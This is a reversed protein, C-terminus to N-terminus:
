KGTLDLVKYLKEFQSVPECLEKARAPGNSGFSKRLSPNKIMTEMISVLAQEDGAKALTGCEPTVIEQAGGMATSVVPLGASLAEVFVAGFPEPGENPQFHIDSAALLKLIDPCRGLFKVRDSIGFANCMQKLEDFYQVEVPRQPWSTIWSVWNPLHKLSALTRLHLSHGKWREFRSNQIIVVTEPSVNMEGRLAAREEASVNSTKLFIPSYIVERAIGLREPYLKPVTAMTYRSNCIIKDPRVMGAWTRLWHWGYIADHIWIFLPVKASRVAPGFLATPWLSHCIVADYGHEKIISVLKQRARWVTCPRSARVVGLLHPKANAEELKQFLHDKFCLAFYHELKPFIGGGKAFTIFLQEVGGFLNGSTIHLIKM